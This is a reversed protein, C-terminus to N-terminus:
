EHSPHATHTNSLVNELSIAGSEEEQNKLGCKVCKKPVIQPHDGVAILPNAMLRCKTSKNPAGQPNGM